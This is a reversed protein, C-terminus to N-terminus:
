GRSPPPYKGQLEDLLRYLRESASPGLSQIPSSAMTHARFAELLSFAQGQPLRQLSIEAIAKYIAAEARMMQFETEEEETM